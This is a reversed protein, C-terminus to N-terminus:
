LLAAMVPNTQREGSRLSRGQLSYGPKPPNTRSERRPQKERHTSLIHEAQNLAATITVDQKPNSTQFYIRLWPCAPCRAIAQIPKRNYTSM